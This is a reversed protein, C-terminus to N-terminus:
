EGGCARVLAELGEIIEEWECVTEEGNGPFETAGTSPDYMGHESVYDASRQRVFAIAQSLGDPIAQIDKLRDRLVNGQNYLAPHSQCEGQWEAIMREVDARLIQDPAKTMESAEIEREQEPTIDYYGSDILYDGYTISM